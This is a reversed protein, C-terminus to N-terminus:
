AMEIAPWAEERRYDRPRTQSASLALTTRFTICTKRNESDETSAFAAIFNGLPM